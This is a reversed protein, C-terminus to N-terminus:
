SKSLRGHNRRYESPTIGNVKKYVKYFYGDNTFGTQESIQAISMHTSTLLEEAKKIRTEMIVNSITKSTINKYQRGLYNPTLDIADAIYALSLNKNKYEQSIIAMVKNVLEHNRSCKHREIMESLSEFAKIFYHNIDDIGEYDNLSIGININMPLNPFKNKQITDFAMKINFVFHTFAMNVTAYPFKSIMDMIEFYKQKVNEINGLMLADILQKEKQIPYKYEKAKLKEITTSYIICSPGYFLRHFSAEVVQNYLFTVHQLSEGITSVTISVSLALNKLIAAQIHKLLSEFSTIMPDFDQAKISLLLCISDEGMDIPETYCEKSCVESAINMIAFKMLNRDKMNYANCFHRYQDIKFLVVMMHSELDFQINYKDFIHQIVKGDFNNYDLIIKRLTENKITYYGSRVESELSEINASMKKVPKYLRKSLFIALMMGIALIFLSLSVVKNRRNNLAKVIDQYPTISIYQWGLSDPSSYVIYSKVGDVQDILYGNAAESNRISSYFKEKSVDTFMPRTETSVMLQGHHDIIWISGKMNDRYTEKILNSITAESVNTIIASNNWENGLPDCLIFSYGDYGQQYTNMSFTPINRPIPVFPKEYDDLLKHIAEDYFNDKSELLNVEEKAAVYFSKTSDNYVYISHIIDSIYRYNELQNSGDIIDATSPKFNFFFKQIYQDYYIQMSINKVADIKQEVNKSLQHLSTHMYTYIQESTLRKFDRYLISSLIVITVIITLTIYMVLKFYYAKSKGVRINKIKGM